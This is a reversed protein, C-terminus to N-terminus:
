YFDKLTDRTFNTDGGGDIYEAQVAESKAPQPEVGPDIIGKYINELVKVQRDYMRMIQKPVDMESRRRMHLNYTALDAAVKKIIKPTNGDSDVVPPAFRQRIYSNIEADADDIAQDIRDTIAPNDLEGQALTGKYSVVAREDDCLQLIKQTPLRAQIDTRDCYPM